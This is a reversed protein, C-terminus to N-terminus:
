RKGENVAMSMIAMHKNLMKLLVQHHLTNESLATVEADIEVREEAGAPAFQFHPRLTARATEGRLDPAGSELMAGVHQEFAVSVRRYGPTNLNAINHALAQQRMAAADLALGLLGTTASDIIALL